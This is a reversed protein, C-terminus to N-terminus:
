RQLNAILREPDALTDDPTASMQPGRRSRGVPLDYRSRCAWWLNSIPVIVTPGLHGSDFLGAPKGRGVFPRNRRAGHCPPAKWHTCPGGPSESWGSAIPATM